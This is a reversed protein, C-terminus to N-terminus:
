EYGLRALVEPLSVWGNRLVYPHNYIRNWPQSFLISCGSFSNINDICDDILFDARVLNKDKCEIYDKKSDIFGYQKLWFYKAGFAGDTSNTVFVVRGFKRLFNIGDKAGFIPLVSSYILPNEIYDFIKDGCKVYEQIEYTIIDDLKISDKYDYNYLRLWVSHLDAVVGDVDVAFIAKM